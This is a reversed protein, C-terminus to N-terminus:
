VSDGIELEKKIRDISWETKERDIDLFPGQGFQSNEQFVFGHVISQLLDALTSTHVNTISETFSYPSRLTFNSMIGGIVMSNQAALIVTQNAELHVSLNLVYNSQARQSFFLLCTLLAVLEGDLNTLFKHDSYNAKEFIISSPEIALAYGNFVNIAGTGILEQAYVLEQHSTARRFSENFAPFYQNKLIPKKVFSKLGSHINPVSMKESQISIQTQFIYYHPLQSQAMATGTSLIFRNVDPETGKLAEIVSVLESTIYQHLGRMPIPDIHQIDKLLGDFDQIDTESSFCFHPETSTKLFYSSQKRTLIFVKITKFVTYHQYKLCTQLTEDIKESKKTSTIQYAVGEGTDGLDLGPFNSKNKNLNELEYKYTLNLIRKIFNEAHKNTNLLGLSSSTEVEQRFRTLMEVIEEFLKGTQIM